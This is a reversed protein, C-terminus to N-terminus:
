PLASGRAGHRPSPSVRWVAVSDEGCVAPSPSGFGEVFELASGAESVLDSYQRPFAVLWDSRAGIWGWGARDPGPLRDPTVLGDLDLVPLETVWAMAGIDGSAAVDGDEALSDVLLAPAIDITMVDGAARVRQRAMFAAGPVMLLIAAAFAPIGTRGPLLRLSRERLWAAAAPMAACLWPVHYRLQNFHNPATALAAAALLPVCLWAPNRRGAMGAIGMLAAPLALPATLLLRAVLGPLGSFDSGSVKAHFTSPLPSGSAHLNWAAWLVIVAAPPIIRLASERRCGAGLAAPICLLATEPRTLVAASLVLGLPLGGLRRSALGASIVTALLAALATEMGSSSHFILPGCLLLLPAAEGGALVALAGAASSIGMLLAPAASGALSAAASPLVWVPSTLGTSPTGPNFQMFGGRALNRGFVLHIYTDDLPAAPASVATLALSAGLSLAALLANSRMVPIPTSM